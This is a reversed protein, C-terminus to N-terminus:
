NEAKWGKKVSVNESWFHDTVCIYKLNSTKAYELIKLSTQEKDLSCRSLGSHIHLDHDIKYMKTRWIM